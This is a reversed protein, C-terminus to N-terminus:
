PTSPPPVYHFNEKSINFSLLKLPSGTYTLEYVTDYDSNKWTPISAKSVGLDATLYQINVHEWAVLITRVAGGLTGLIADAAVKNGGRAMAGYSDNVTLGLKDATPQVTHVCREPELSYYNAFIKQPTLFTDRGEGPQGNFVGVLYQARARGQADLDGLAWNKEGHRIIYIRSSDDATGNTANTAAFAVLAATIALM